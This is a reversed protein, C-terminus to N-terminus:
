MWSWIGTMTLGGQAPQNSGFGSFPPDISLGALLRWRDSLPWLGSVAVVTVRRASDPV